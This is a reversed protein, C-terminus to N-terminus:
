NTRGKKIEGALELLEKYTWDEGQGKERHLIEKMIQKQTANLGVANGANVFAGNRDKSSRMKDSM